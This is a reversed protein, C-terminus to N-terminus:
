PLKESITEIALKLQYKKRRYCLRDLAQEM